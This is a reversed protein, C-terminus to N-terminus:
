QLVNWNRWQWGSWAGTQPDYFETYRDLPNTKSTAQFVNVVGYSTTNCGMWRLEWSPDWGPNEGYTESKIDTFRVDGSIARAIDMRARDAKYNNGPLLIVLRASVYSYIAYTIDGPEFFVQNIDSYTTWNSGVRKWVTQWIKGLAVARSLSYRQGGEEVYATSSPANYPVSIYTWTGVTLTNSYERARDDVFLSPARYRLVYSVELSNRYPNSLPALTQDSRVEFHLHAARAYYGNADGITGVQQGKTVSSGTTVVVNQLHYYVGDVTSNDPLTHRVIVARGISPTIVGINDVYQVTGDAIAYVPKGLDTSGGCKGNWDEGLHYKVFTPNWQTNYQDLKYGTNDIIGNGDCDWNENANYPTQFSGSTGAQVVGVILLLAGIFLGFILRKQM